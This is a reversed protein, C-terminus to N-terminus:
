KRTIDAVRGGKSRAGGKKCIRSGVRNEIQGIQNGIIRTINESKDFDYRKRSAESVMEAKPKLASLHFCGEQSFHRRRINSSQGTSKSKTFLLEWNSNQHLGSALDSPNTALYSRFGRSKKGQKLEYESHDMGGMTIAM